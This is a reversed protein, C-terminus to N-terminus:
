SSRPRRCAGAALVPYELNHFSDRYCCSRPGDATHGGLARLCGFAFRGEVTNLNDIRRENNLDMGDTEGRDLEPVLQEKRHVVIDIVTM